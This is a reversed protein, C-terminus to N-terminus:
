KPAAPRRCPSRCRVVVRQLVDVLAEPVETPLQSYLRVPAAGPAEERRGLDLQRLRGLLERRGRDTGARM